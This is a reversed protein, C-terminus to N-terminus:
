AIVSILDTIFSPPMSKICDPGIGLMISAPHTLGMGCRCCKGEHFLAAGMADLVAPERLARQIFHVVKHIHSGQTHEKGLSYNKSDQYFTAAFDWGTDGDNLISTYLYFRNTGVLKGEIRTKKQVVKLRIHTGKENNRLTLRTRGAFFLHPFNASNLSRNM